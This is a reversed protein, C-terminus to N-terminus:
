GNSLLLLEDDSGFVSDVADSSLKSSDEGASRILQPLLTSGTAIANGNIDVRHDESDSEVWADIAESSGSAFLAVPERVFEGEAQASTPGVGSSEAEPTSSQEILRNIVRLADNATIRGDGNVDLYPKPMLPPMPLPLDVDSGSVNGFSLENICQLADVASTRGDDNVDTPADHNQWLPRQRAVDAMIKKLADYNISEGLDYGSPPTLNVTGVLENQQNLIKVDRYTVGWNDYWVDSSGNNDADVDQLIPTAHNAAMLPNGSEHGFENVGVIQIPADPYESRLENQM